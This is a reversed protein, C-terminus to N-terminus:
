RQSKRSSFWFRKRIEPDGLLPSSSSSGILATTVDADEKSIDSGADDYDQADAGDRGRPKFEALSPMNGHTITDLSHLFM